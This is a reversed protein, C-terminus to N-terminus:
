DIRLIPTKNRFRKSMSLQCLQNAIHQIVIFNLGMHELIM